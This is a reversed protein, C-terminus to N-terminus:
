RTADIPISVGLAALREMEGADPSFAVGAGWALISGDVNLRLPSTQDGEEAALYARDGIVEVAIWRRRNLNDIYGNVMWDGRIRASLSRNPHNTM